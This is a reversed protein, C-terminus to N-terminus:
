EQQSSPGNLVGRLRRCLTQIIARAVEVNEDMLFELDENSLKLLLSDELATVTASRPEPDLAAMEGVVDREFLEAVNTGNAAVALRGSVIVFLSTGLEGQQFLCQGATLRVERVSAAASVLFEERVGAFLKVGKLVLLKEITLMAARERIEPRGAGIWDLVERIVPDVGAGAKGVQGANGTAFIISASLLPTFRQDSALRDLQNGVTSISKDIRVLGAARAETSEPELLPFIISKVAEELANDLMEMVYSRRVPGGRHYNAHAEHIDIRNDILAVLCFCNDICRAVEDVLIRRVSEFRAESHNTQLQLWLQLADAAVAVEEELLRRINAVKETASDDRRRWLARLIRNRVQRGSMGLLAVLREGAAATAIGRYVDVLAYRLSADLDDRKFVADLAPLLPGGVASLASIAACELEPRSLSELMVPWLRATGVVGAARLAERAVTPDQDRMLALLPRYFSNSGARGMLQAAFRRRSPDEASLDALLRPAVMLVGEIGGFRMLSSAAGLRITESPDDLWLGFEAAIDDDGAAIGEILLCKVGPDLEAEIAGRLVTAPASLLGRALRRAIEFRVERAEHGLLKVIENSDLSYDLGDLLSLSYLVEGPRSSNLGQRLIACSEDDGFSLSTSVSRRSLAARLAGLYGSYQITVLGIWLCCVLLIVSTIGVTAFGLTTIMVILLLGAIGGCIPEVMSELGAQVRSREGAPLPQFLTVFTTKDVTYRLSQDIVKMGIVLLFLVDPPGGAMSTVVAAASGILLMVPLTLLGGRVGHRKQLWPTLLVSSGLSVFGVIAFYIGLFSALESSSEYRKGAEVYFANDVFFGTMQSAAVLLVLTVIYGSQWWRRPSSASGLEEPDATNASETPRHRRLIFLVLAVGAGSGIASLLFLDAPSILQLVLPMSLGFIIIAVPEGASVFGFRRKGQRLTMLQNALGWLLLSSFVFEIGFYVISAAAVFPNMLAAGINFLILSAVQFLLTGVQLGLLSFNREARIYLFGAVPICISQALYAWPLAGAGYSEIFFTYAATQTYVRPIGSIFFSYLFLLLSLQIESSLGSFRLRNEAAARFIRM